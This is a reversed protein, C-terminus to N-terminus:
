SPSCPKLQYAESFSHVRLLPPSAIFPSASLNKQAASSFWGLRSVSFSHPLSFPCKPLPQHTADGVPCPEHLQIKHSLFSPASHQEYAVHWLQFQSQAECSLSLSLSINTPCSPGCRGPSLSFLVLSSCKTKKKKERFNYLIHM